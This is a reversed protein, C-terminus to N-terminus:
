DEIGDVQLVIIKRKYKQTLEGYMEVENQEKVGGICWGLRGVVM